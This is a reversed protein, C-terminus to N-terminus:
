VLVQRVKTIRFALVQTIVCNEEFHVADSQLQFSAGADRGWAPEFIICCWTSINDHMYCVNRDQMYSFM